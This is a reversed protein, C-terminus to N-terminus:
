SADTDSGARPDAIHQREIRPDPVFWAAAIVVYITISILPHVFALGIASLYGIASLKAKTDAGLARALAGERGQLRIIAAELLQYSIAAGVLVV